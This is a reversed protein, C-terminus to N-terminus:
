AHNLRLPNEVAIIMQQGNGFRGPHKGLIASTTFFIQFIHRPLPYCPFPILRSVDKKVCHMAYVTIDTSDYQKGACAFGEAPQVALHLLPPSLFLVPSNNFADQRFSLSIKDMPENMAIMPRLFGFGSFGACFFAM